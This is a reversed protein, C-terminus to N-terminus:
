LLFNRAADKVLRHASELEDKPTEVPPSPTSGGFECKGGCISCYGDVKTGHSIVWEKQAKRLNNFRHHYGDIAKLAEQTESLWFDLNAFQGALHHAYSTTFKKLQNAILTAKEITYSM